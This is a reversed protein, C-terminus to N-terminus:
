QGFVMIAISLFGLGLVGGSFSTSSYYQVFISGAIGALVGSIFVAQYRVRNVNRGVAALSNPNEGAARL